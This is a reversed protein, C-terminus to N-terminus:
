VPLAVSRKWFCKAKTQVYGMEVCEPKHSCETEAALVSTAAFAAGLGLLLYKKMLEAGEIVSILCIRQKLICM